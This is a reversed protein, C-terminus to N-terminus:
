PVSVRSRMASPATSTSSVRIRRNLSCAKTASTSTLRAVASTVLIGNASTTGVMSPPKPVVSAVTARSTPNPAIIPRSSSIVPPACTSASVRIPRNPSFRAGNASPTADSSNPKGIKKSAPRTTISGIMKLTARWNPPETRM